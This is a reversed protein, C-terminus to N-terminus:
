GAEPTGGPQVFGNAKLGDEVLLRIAAARSEIRNAFRFDDIREVLERPFSVAIRQMKGSVSDPPAFMPEIM